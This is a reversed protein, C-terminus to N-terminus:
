RILLGTILTQTFYVVFLISVIWMLPHIQRAKGRFVKVVVLTIFGMGIGVTISYAFPMMVITMFSPLAMDLNDWDIETIQQMMMFGVLLLVPSIVESPVMHVVPSLIISLLFCCGTVVSAFGTRAGEAVGSASEVFSTNSSASGLGGAMASISDVLLIEKLYPPNGDEDLLNGEKGVAVVTGMTDFFDALLLSFILMLLGIFIKWDFAGNPAFGGFLDVRGLLSFNPSIFDKAEPFTPANLKWGYANSEAVWPGIHKISELVVALATGAVITILMAGKVKRVHLFFLLLLSIFFTAIPWGQLSGGVGLEVPTGSASNVVGANILGIFAVFVGIGVSIATRLSSPVARFIAQRVGTLVLVTILIGEWVFLGMAQAWTMQPAIVYAAMANLGLGSSIGIPFRGWAGMLITLLGSILATAVAVMAISATVAGEASASVGSILNGNKDATTGIIIPNLIIIYAMSFFTVLGGRIERGITSGRKSIEFWRELVGAKNSASTLADSETNSVM